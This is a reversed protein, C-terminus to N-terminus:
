NIIKIEYIYDKEEIKKLVDFWKVIQGFISYRGDLEPMKNTVFFFETSSSHVQGSKVMAISGKKFLNRVNEIESFNKIQYNYKPELEQKLSIELPITPLIKNLIQNKELFNNRQPNIGSHIVKVESYNIIKYFNQKKYIDKKINEIFNTVTLPYNKGNLKVEFNGKSTIFSVLKDNRICNFKLKECYYKSDFIRVSSCATIM